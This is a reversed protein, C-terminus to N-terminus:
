LSDLSVKSAEGEGHGEGMGHNRGWIIAGSKM